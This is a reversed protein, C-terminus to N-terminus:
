FSGNYDVHKDHHEGFTYEDSGSVYDTHGDQHAFTSQAVFSSQEYYSQFAEIIFM